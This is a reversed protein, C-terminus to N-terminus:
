VSRVGPLEYANGYLSNFLCRSTSFLLGLETLIKMHQLICSVMFAVCSPLVPLYIFVLLLPVALLLTLLFPILLSFSLLFFV